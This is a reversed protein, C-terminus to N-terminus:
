VPLEVDAELPGGCEASGGVRKWEVDLHGQSILTGDAGTLRYGLTSRGDLFTASWGRRGNGTLDIMEADAPRAPSPTATPIALDTPSAWKLPAAEGAMVPRPECADGGCMELTVGAVPEELTVRATASYGVATCAFGGFPACATLTVAASAAIVLVRLARM